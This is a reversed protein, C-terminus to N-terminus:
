ASKHAKPMRPLRERRRFLRARRMSLDSRKPTQPLAPTTSPFKKTMPTKGRKMRRSKHYFIRYISFIRAGGAPCLWFAGRDPFARYVEPRHSRRDACPPPEYALRLSTYSTYSSRLFSRAFLKTYCTERLLNQFFSQGYLPFLDQIFRFRRFIGSRASSVFPLLALVAKAAKRKFGRRSVPRRFRRPVPRGNAPRFFCM